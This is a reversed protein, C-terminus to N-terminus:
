APINSPRKRRHIVTSLAGPHPRCAPNRPNAFLRDSREAHQPAPRESRAVTCTGARIVQRVRIDQRGGNAFRVHLDRMEISRNLACVRIQRHRDDGRVRIVDRDRGSGVTTYGITTWSGGHGPNPGPLPPRPPPRHHQPQQAVAMGTAGLLAIAALLAVQKM